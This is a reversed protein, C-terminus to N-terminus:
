KLLAREEREFALDILRSILQPYPLGSAEWMKPYMSIKTFGPLTNIENVYVQGDPRLFFDVRAFGDCFLTDFTQVAMQQIQQIQQAFHQQIQPTLQGSQQYQMIQQQIQQLQMQLQQNNNM